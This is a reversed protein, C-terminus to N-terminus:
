QKWDTYIDLYNCNTTVLKNLSQQLKEIKPLEYNGKIRLVKYGNAICYSNRKGDEKSKNQHWFQGDFEVDIKQGNIELMCDLYFPYLLYNLVCNDYKEKLINYLKTQIKSTACKGSKFLSQRIKKRVEESKLPSDVGFREICTQKRKEKIKENQVSYEVGFHKLCTQKKKDKIEEAQSINEVGYKEIAINKFIEKAKETKFFCDVGFHELCTQKRKNIVDKSYSPNEVGYRELYTEKKKIYSCKKCCDGFKEDHHLIYRNYTRKFIKGCYDCKVDVEANSTKALDEIKVMFPDYVKTFIYGKDEYMKRYRRCWHNEVEKTLLM